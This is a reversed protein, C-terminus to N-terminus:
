PTVAHTRVYGLAIDLAVELRRVDRTTRALLLGGQLAAMLGTALREPDVDAALEGNDRVGTIGVALLSEWAAFCARVASRGAEDGDALLEALDALPCIEDDRGRELRVVEDLWQVLDRLSHLNTLLQEQIALLRGLRTKVTEGTPREDARGGGDQGYRDVLDM